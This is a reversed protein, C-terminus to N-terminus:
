RPVQAKTGQRLVMVMFSRFPRCDDRQKKRLHLEIGELSSITSGTTKIRRCGMTEKEYGEQLKGVVRGAGGWIV